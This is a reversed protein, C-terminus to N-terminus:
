SLSFFPSLLRHILHSFNLISASHPVSYLLKHRGAPVRDRSTFLSLSIARHRQERSLGTTTVITM